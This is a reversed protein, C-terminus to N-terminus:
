SAGFLYVASIGFHQYGPYNFGGGVKLKLGRAVIIGATVEAKGLPM